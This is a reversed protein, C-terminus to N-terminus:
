EDSSIISKILQCTRSGIDLKNCWYKSTLNINKIRAYFIIFFRAECRPWHGFSECSYINIGRLQKKIVFKVKLWKFSYNNHKKSREGM